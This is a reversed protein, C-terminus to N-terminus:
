PLVPPQIQPGNCFHHPRAAKQKRNLSSTTQREVTSPRPFVTDKLARSSIVFRFGWCCFICSPNRNSVILSVGSCAATATGKEFVQYPRASAATSARIELAQPQLSEFKSGFCGRCIPHEVQLECVARPSRTQLTKPLKPVVHLQCQPKTSRANLYYM